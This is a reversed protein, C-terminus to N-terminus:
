RSIVIIISIYELCENLTVIWKYLISAEIKTLRRDLEKEPTSEGSMLRCSRVIKDISQQPLKHKHIRYRCRYPNVANMRAIINESHYEWKEVEEELVLM